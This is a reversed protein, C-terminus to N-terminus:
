GGEGTPEPKWDVGPTFEVVRDPAPPRNDDWREYLVAGGLALVVPLLVAAARRMLTGSSQVRMAGRVPAEASEIDLSERTVARLRVFAVLQARGGQEELAAAVADPDVPERDLLASLVAFRDDTTM